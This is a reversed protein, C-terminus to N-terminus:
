SRPSGQVGLVRALGDLTLAYTKPFASAIIQTVSDTEKTGKEALFIIEMSPNVDRLNLYTELIDMFKGTSVLIAMDFPTREARDIADQGDQAITIHSGASLLYQRVDNCPSSSVVLARM